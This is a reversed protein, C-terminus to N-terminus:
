VRAMMTEFLGSSAALSVVAGDIRPNEGGDVPTTTDINETLSVLGIDRQELDEATAILKKLSRALRDLKWVVLVDGKRLVDDVM